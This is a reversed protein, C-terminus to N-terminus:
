IVRINSDGLYAIMSAIEGEDKFSMADVYAHLVTAIHQDTLPAHNIESPKCASVQCEVLAKILDGGATPSAVTHLSVTNVGHIKLLPMTPM